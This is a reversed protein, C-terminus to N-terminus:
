RRHEIRKRRVMTIGTIAGGARACDAPVDVVVVVELGPMVPVSGSGISGPMTSAMRIESSIAYFPGVRGM